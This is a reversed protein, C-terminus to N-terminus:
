NRRRLVIHGKQIVLALRRTATIDSAPDGAVAILDARMGAAILGIESQVGLARAPAATAAALAQHPTLGAEVLLELERHMDFGPAVLFAPADTGALVCGGDQALRRTFAGIRELREGRRQKEQASMGEAGANTLQSVVWTRRLLWPLYALMPNDPSALERIRFAHEAVVLTPTLCAGHARFAELAAREAEPDSGGWDMGSAHEITDVGLALAREASIGDLHAAVWLGRGHALEVAAQVVAEPMAGHLKIGDVGAMALRAVAARAELPGPAGTEKDAAGEPTGVLYPGTVFLRPGIREGADAQQRHRLIGELQAGLNRATTVGNGLMMEGSFTGGMEHIHMDVLGPLITLGSADVVRAGPDPMQAFRGGTIALAENARLGGRADWVMGGRLVLPAAAGPGPPASTLGAIRDRSALLGLGDLAETLVFFNSPILLAVIFGIFLLVAPIAVGLAIRRRGRSGPLM